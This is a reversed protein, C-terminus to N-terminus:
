TSSYRLFKVFVFVGAAFFLVGLALLTIRLLVLRDPVLRGVFFTLFMLATFLGFLWQFMSRPQPMDRGTFPDRRTVRMYIRVGVFALVLLGSSFALVQLFVEDLVEM